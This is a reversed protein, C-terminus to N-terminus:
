LTLTHPPQSMANYEHPIDDYHFAVQTTSLQEEIRRVVKKDGLFGYCRWVTAVCWLQFLTGTLHSFFQTFLLPMVTTSSPVRGLKRPEMLMSSSPVVGLQLTNISFPIKNNYMLHTLSSPHMFGFLDNGIQAFGLLVAILAFVIFPLLFSRRETRIGHVLLLLLLLQLTVAFLLSSIYREGLQNIWHDPTLRGNTAQIYYFTFFLAFVFTILMQAYAIFLSARVVHFTRCCCKYKDANANWFDDLNVDGVRQDGNHASKQTLKAMEYNFSVFPIRRQGFSDEKRGQHKDVVIRQLYIKYTASMLHLVDTQIAADEAESYKSSSHRSQVPKKQIALIKCHAILRHFDSKDESEFKTDCVLCKMLRNESQLQKCFNVESSNRQLITLTIAPRDHILQIHIALLDHTKFQISCAACHYRFVEEIHIVSHEQFRYQSSFIQHCIACRYLIELHEDSHHQRIQQFNYFPVPPCEKCKVHIFRIRSPPTVFFANQKRDKSILHTKMHYGFEAFGYLTMDCQQCVLSPGVDTSKKERVEQENYGDFNNNVADNDKFAKPKFQKRKTSM